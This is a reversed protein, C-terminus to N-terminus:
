NRQREIEIKQEEHQHNNPSYNATKKDGEVKYSQDELCKSQQSGHSKNDLHVLKQQEISKHAEIQFQFTKTSLTSAYDDAPSPLKIQDEDDDTSIAELHAGNQEFIKMHQTSLTAQR